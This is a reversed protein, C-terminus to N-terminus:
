KRRRLFLGGLALLAMSAPEPTAIQEVEFQVAGAFSLRVGFDGSGSPAIDYAPGSSYYDVAGWYSWTRPIPIESDTFSGPGSAPTINYTWGLPAVVALVNFTKDMFINFHYDTWTFDTANEVTKLVWVTPDLEDNTAVDGLIHGPTRYMTETINLDAETKEANTWAWTSSCTIAGDGDAACTIGTIYANALPSAAAVVLLEVLWSTRM